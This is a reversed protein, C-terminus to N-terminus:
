LDSGDTNGTPNSYVRPNIAEFPFVEGYPVPPAVLAALRGTIESAKECAKISVYEASITDTDVPLHLGHQETAGVPLVIVNTQKLAERIEESNLKWLAVNLVM